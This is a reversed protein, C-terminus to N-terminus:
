NTFININKVYTTSPDGVSNLFFMNVYFTGATLRTALMHVRYKKYATDALVTLEHVSNSLAQMVTANSFQGSLTTVGNAMDESVNTTALVTKVSGDSTAVKAEFEVIIESCVNSVAIALGTGLVQEYATLITSRETPLEAGIQTGILNNTILAAANNGATVIAAALETDTAFDGGTVASIAATVFSESAILENSNADAFAMKHDARSFMLEGPYGTESTSAVERPFFCAIGNKYVVKTDM